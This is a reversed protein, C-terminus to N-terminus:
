NVAICLRDLCGKHGWGEKHPDNPDCEESVSFGTPDVYNDRIGDGCWTIEYTQLHTITEPPEQDKIRQLIKYIIFINDFKRNVPNHLIDYLNDTEIIKIEEGPLLVFNKSEVENTWHFKPNDKGNINGSETFSVEFKNLQIKKDTTNEYALFLRYEHGKRLKQTNSKRKFMDSGNFATYPNNYFVPPSEENKDAENSKKDTIKVNVTGGSSNNIVQNGNGDSSLSTVNSTDKKTFILSSLLSVLALILGLLAIKNEISLKKFWSM